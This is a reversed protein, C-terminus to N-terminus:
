GEGPMEKRRESQRAVAGFIGATPPSGSLDQAFALSRLAPFLESKGHDWQALPPPLLLM